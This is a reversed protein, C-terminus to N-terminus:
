SCKEKVKDFANLLSDKWLKSQGQETITKDNVMVKLLTTKDAAESSLNVEIYKMATCKAQLNKLKEIIMNMLSVAGDFSDTKFDFKLTIDNNM